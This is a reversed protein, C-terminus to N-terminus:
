RGVEGGCVVASPVVRNALDRELRLDNVRDIGGM